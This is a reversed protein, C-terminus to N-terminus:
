TPPQCAAAFVFPLAGVRFAAIIPRADVTAMLHVGPGLHLALSLAALAVHLSLTPTALVLRLAPVLVARALCRGLAAGVECCAIVAPHAAM